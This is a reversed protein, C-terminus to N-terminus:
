KAETEDNLKLDERLMALTGKAEDFDFNSAQKALSAALKAQPTSKLRGKLALAKEEADPDMDELMTALDDILPRIEEVNPAAPARDDDGAGAPAPPEVLQKLGQMVPLLADELSGVLEAGATRDNDKLASEIAAATESLQHAGITASVGKITHALRQAVADDGRDLADKIEDADSAHDNYFDALLKRLLKRNGGVRGLAFDIDIGSIGGQPLDEDASETKGTGADDDAPTREGEPIWHVLAKFLEKPDIPKAVHDNMGAAICEERDGAMANATMAIIPLEAFAPNGRIARTAEYGDMEPMQLDMLVADFPKQEVNSVAERGNEAVTVVLGAQSLLEQAVQQNIKNDEVLLVCAGHIGEIKDIKWADEGRGGRRFGGKDGFVGIITDLLSSPTFPKVLFGSLGAEEAESVVEERGYATVMIITPTEQLKELGKIRRSAEIGDLGPMQWDMLVLRYPDDESAEQLATLAAEGSDVCTARFSFSSLMSNLIERSSAVDDVVLVRLRDLDVPATTEAEEEMEAARGFVVNFSFTTGVGPESEVRIGGGMLEVLKKSIALGLGTGGFKRTTSTDAQSFSQFLKGCQDLTMGIGTDEIAISIDAEEDSVRVPAIHVVIEGRETFKVANGTLNLLVQGLRLPDGILARPVDPHIDFLLELGKEQAKLATLNGLNDLVDDLRFPISEIELKGAEVKSFDLIDNIIGLLSQASGHVKEVYDRQRATLDTGLCLHSMGIIANM